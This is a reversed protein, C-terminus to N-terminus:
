GILRLAQALMTKTAEAAAVNAEYARATEVANVQEIAPNVNPTLVYGDEGADPHHPDYRKQFPSEDLMIESVHVGKERGPKTSSTPDGPMFVAIRRRFPSIEGQANRTANQNALNASIVDMRTRLAIMGSVSIDLSGYM